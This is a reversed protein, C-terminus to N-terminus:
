RVKLLEFYHWCHYVPVLMLRPLVYRVAERFGDAISQLTFLCFLIDRIYLNHSCCYSVSTTKLFILYLSSEPPGTTLVQWTLQPLRPKLRQHSFQSGLQQVCSLLLLLLKCQVVIIVICVLCCCCLPVSIKLPVLKQDLRM